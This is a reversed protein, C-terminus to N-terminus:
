EISKLFRSYEKEGVNLIVLREGNIGIRLSEKEEDYVSYKPKDHLELENLNKILM